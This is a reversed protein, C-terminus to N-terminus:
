AVMARSKARAADPLRPGMLDAFNRSYFREKAGESRSQLSAGFKGFPDKGGEIHPYDTSFLYLREDSLDILRGVDEWILPTFRMQEAFTESPKRKLDRLEQTSKMWSRHTFDLRDIFSPVWGAGHEIVGGMLRPFRDFVGDFCMATLFEEVPHHTSPFDKAMVGEGSGIFNSPPPKGNNFYAPRVHYIGIHNIFPTGSEELVRWFRDLDPHGPSKDGAPKPPVSIASCGLQIAEEAAKVARETDWLPVAAVGLLREDKSCWDAIARSHASVGRYLLDYDRLGSFQSTAFTSFVLQADIGTLDLVRSREAANFAGLAEYGKPGGLINAELEAIKHAPHAGLRALGVWEALKGGQEEVKMRRFAAKAKADAYPDLFEPSEM